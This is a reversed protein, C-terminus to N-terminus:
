NILSSSSISCLHFRKWALWHFAQLNEGPLWGPALLLLHPPHQPRPIWHRVPLSTRLSVRPAQPRASPARLRGSAWRPSRSFPRPGQATRLGLAPFGSPSHGGSCDPPRARPSAFPRPGRRAPAQSAGVQWRNCTAAQGWGGAERPQDRRGTDQWAHGAKSSM